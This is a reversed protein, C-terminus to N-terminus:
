DTNHIQILFRKSRNKNRGSYKNRGGYFYDFDDTNVHIEVSFRLRATDRRHVASQFDTKMKRLRIKQLMGQITQFTPDPDPIFCELDV